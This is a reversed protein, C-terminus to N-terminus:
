RSNISANVASSDDMAPEVSRLDRNLLEGYRERVRHYASELSDKLAPWEEDATTSTATLEERLATQSRKLRDIEDIYVSDGETAVRGLDAIGRDLQKLKSEMVIQFQKREQRSVVPRGQEDAACAGIMSLVLLGLVCGRRKM